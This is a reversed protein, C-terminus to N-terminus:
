RFASACLGIIVAALAVSVFGLLASMTVCRLIAGLQLTGDDSQVRYGLAAGWQFTPLAVALAGLVLMIKSVIALEPAAMPFLSAAAFCVTALLIGAILKIPHPANM